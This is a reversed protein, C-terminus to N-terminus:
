KQFRDLDYSHGKEFFFPENCLHAKGKQRRHERVRVTKCDPPFIFLVEGSTHCKLHMQRLQKKSWEIDLVGVGEVQLGILRGCDLSIPLRPLIELRRETQQFFLSRVLRAGEQILFLPDAQFPKEEPIIGQHLSDTYQPVFLHTFAVKLFNKLAQDFQPREKPLQLLRATGLLPQPSIPPIKQGLFFLLPLLEKLDFRRQVGEWDGKRHIGLSLRELSARLVFPIQLPFHLRDKKGLVGTGQTGGFGLGSAPVREAYLSFGEESAELRLEFFGELAKGFVRVCNGELDQQLTFGEVPGTVKLHIEIGAWRLLTPFAEFVTGTGPLLCAMGPRHSFPRLRHAITINM